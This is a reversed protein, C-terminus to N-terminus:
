TVFSVTGLVLLHAYSSAVFVGGTTMAPSIFQHDTEGKVGSIAEFLHSHPISGGPVSERFFLDQLAASAAARTAATDVKLRLTLNIVQATPVIM